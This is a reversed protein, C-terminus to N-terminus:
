SKRTVPPATSAREILRAGVRYTRALRRLNEPDTPAGIQNLLLDVALEAIESAGNDVVTVPPHWMQLLPMDEFCALALDDPIRVQEAALVPLVGFVAEHNAAFLATMGTRRALLERAADAGFDQTFPGRIVLDPDYALGEAELAESYGAHRERGSDSTPEGGIYGIRRHGLGALHRTAEFAGDRDAALVTPALSDRSSRIVNVVAMGDALFGNTTAANQGSGIILTGDVGHDSLTRLLDQEAAPDGGTTSLIVQYGESAAKRQTVEAITHFSHNVLNNMVLGILRSRKSRLASAARNPRYGLKQASGEVLTRTEHSILPSGNLARSATSISVGADQAVARLTISM